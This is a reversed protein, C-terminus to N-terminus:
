ARALKGELKKIKKAIIRLSSPIGLDNGLIARDAELKIKEARLKNLQKQIAKKDKESM